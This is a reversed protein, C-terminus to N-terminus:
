LLETENRFHGTLQTQSVLSVNPIGKAFIEAKRSSNQSKTRSTNVLREPENVWASVDDSVLLTVNMNFHDKSRRTTATTSPIKPNAPMM